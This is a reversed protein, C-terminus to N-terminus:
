GRQKNQETLSALVPLDLSEEAERPNKVTTDLSDVFFALGLGVILSFIPALAIRVYDKTNKPYPASAPAIIFVTQNRSTAQNVKARQTDKSLDKYKENLAFIRRDYDALRNEQQPMAALKLDIELVRQQAREVKAQQTSVEIEALRIRNKVESALLEKLGQIEKELRVLEPQGPRYVRELEELRMQKEVMEGKIDSIVVENGTYQSAVFPVDPYKEPNREYEYMSQLKQQLEALDQQMRDVNAMAHSRQTLQSARETGVDVIQHANLYDRREAQLLDIEDKIESLEDEFFEEPYDLSYTEQRFATYAELMADTVRVCVEPALDQYSLALVNSEGVVAAEVRTPEIHVANTGAQNASEQLIARARQIVAPSRATEVESALEEEWTMTRRYSQLLNDQVGRRVLVKGTSEWYTPQSLIFAATVSTTVAFVGLIIWKRRFLVAVVDRVTVQKYAPQQDNGNIAM